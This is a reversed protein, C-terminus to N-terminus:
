PHLYEYIIIDEISCVPALLLDGSSEGQLINLLNVWYALKQEVDSLQEAM